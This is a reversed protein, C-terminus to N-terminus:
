HPSCLQRWARVLEAAAAEVEADKTFRGLSLRVAGLAADRPFGLATLIVSPEESYAHCASGTSAAV